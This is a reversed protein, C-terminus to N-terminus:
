SLKHYHGAAAAQRRQAHVARCRRTQKTGAPVAVVGLPTPRPTARPDQDDTTQCTLPTKEPSNFLQKYLNFIFVFSQSSLLRSASAPVCAGAGPGPPGLQVLVCFLSKKCRAGVLLVCCRATGQQAWM